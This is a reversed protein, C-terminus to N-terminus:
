FLLFFSAWCMFVKEMEKMLALPLLRCRRGGVTLKRLLDEYKDRELESLPREREVGRQGGRQAATATPPGRAMTM